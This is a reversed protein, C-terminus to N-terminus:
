PGNGAFTLEQKAGGFRGYRDFIFGYGFYKSFIRMRGSLSASSFDRAGTQWHSPQLSAPVCRAGTPRMFSPSYKLNQKSWTRSYLLPKM